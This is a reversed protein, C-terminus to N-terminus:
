IAICPRISALPRFGVGGLSPPFSGIRLSLFHSDILFIRCASYLAQLVILGNTLAPLHSTGVPFAAESFYFGDGDLRQSVRGRVKRLVEAWPDISFVPNLVRLEWTM